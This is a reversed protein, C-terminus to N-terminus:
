KEEMWEDPLSGVCTNITCIVIRKMFVRFAFILNMDRLIFTDHKIAIHNWLMLVSMWSVINLLGRKMAGHGPRVSIKFLEYLILNVFCLRGREGEM